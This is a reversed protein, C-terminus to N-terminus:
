GREPQASQETHKTLKNIKDKLKTLIEESKGSEIVIRYKNSFLIKKKLTIYLVNRKEGIVCFSEILELKLNPYTFVTDSIITLGNNNIIIKGNVLYFIYLLYGFIFIINYKDDSHINGAFLKYVPYIMGFYILQKTWTGPITKYKDSINSKREIILWVVMKIVIILLILSALTSIAIKFM